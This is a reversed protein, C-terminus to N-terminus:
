RFKILTQHSLCRFIKFPQVGALARDMILDIKDITPNSQILRIYPSLKKAFDTLGEDATRLKMNFVFTILLQIVVMAYAYGVPVVDFFSLVFLTVTIVPFIFILYFYKSQVFSASLSLNNDLKKAPLDDLEGEAQYNQRFDILGKLESIADQRKKIEKVDFL